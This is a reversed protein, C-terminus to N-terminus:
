RRSAQPVIGIPAARAPTVADCNPRRAVNAIEAAILATHRGITNKATVLRRRSSCRGTTAWTVVGPDAKGNRAKRLESIVHTDLLYM